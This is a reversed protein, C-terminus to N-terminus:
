FEPNELYQESEEKHGNDMPPINSFDPTRSSNFSFREKQPVDCNTKLV